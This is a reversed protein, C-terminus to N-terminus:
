SRREAICAKCTEVTPPRHLGAAHNRAETQEIAARREEARKTTSHRTDPTEYDPRALAARFAADVVDMAAQKGVMDGVREVLAERIAADRGEIYANVYAREDTLAETSPTDPTERRCTVCSPNGPPRLCDPCIGKPTDPTM